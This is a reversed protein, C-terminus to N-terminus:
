ALLFFEDGFEAEVGSDGVISDQVGNGRVRDQEVAGHHDGLFAGFSGGM